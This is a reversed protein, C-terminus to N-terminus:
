RVDFSSVRGNFLLFEFMSFHYDSTMSRSDFISFVKTANGVQKKMQSSRSAKNTNSKSQLTAHSWKGVWTRWGNQNWLWCKLYITPENLWKTEVGRMAAAFCKRKTAIAVRVGLSRASGLTVITSSTLSMWSHSAAQRVSSRMRSIRGRLFCKHHFADGVLNIGNSAWYLNRASIKRRRNGFPMSGFFNSFSAKVITYVLFKLTCLLAEIIGLSTPYVTPVVIRSNIDFSRSRLFFGTAKWRAVRFAVNCRKEGDMNM